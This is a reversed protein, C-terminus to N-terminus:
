WSLPEGGHKQQLVQEVQATTSLDSHGGVPIRDPPLKTVALTRCLTHKLFIPGIAGMQLDPKGFQSQDPVSRFCSRPPSQHWLNTNGHDQCLSFYIFSNKKIQVFISLSGNKWTETHTLLSVLLNVHKPTISQRKLHQKHSIKFKVM